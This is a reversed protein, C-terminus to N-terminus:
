TLACTTKLINKQQDHGRKKHCSIKKKFVFVFVNKLVFFMRARTSFISYHISMLPQNLHALMIGCKFQGTGPTIISCPMSPFFPASLDIVRPFSTAEM